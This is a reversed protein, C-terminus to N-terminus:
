ILLVFFLFGLVKALEEETKEKRAALGWPDLLVLHKVDEPNQIAYNGALYGGFSHGALHVAQGELGVEKKWMKLTDTFYNLAEEPNDDTFKINHRSARGFLPLDIAYVKKRNTSVSSQSCVDKGKYHESLVELSAMYFGVAAGYGHLLILPPRGGNDKDLIFTNIHGPENPHLPSSYPVFTQQVHLGNTLSATKKGSSSAIINFFRLMRKEAM